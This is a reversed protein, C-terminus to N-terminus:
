EEGEFQHDVNGPPDEHGGPGDSEKSTEGEAESGQSETGETSEVGNDPASQDGDQVNDTDPTTVEVATAPKTSPSSGSKAMAVGGIAALMLATTVVAMIKTRQNM